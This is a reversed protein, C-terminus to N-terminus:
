LQSVLIESVARPHKGHALAIHHSISVKKLEDEAEDDRRSKM